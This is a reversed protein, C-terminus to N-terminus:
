CFILGVVEHYVDSKWFDLSSEWQSCRVGSNSGLPSLRQWGGMRNGVHVSGNM